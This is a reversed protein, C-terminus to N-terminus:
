KLCKINYEKRKEKKVVHVKGLIDVDVKILKELKSLGISKEIFLGNKFINFQAAGTCSNIGKYIAITEEDNFEKYLVSDGKYLSYIFDKDDVKFIGKSKIIINPLTNELIQYRYVPVVKLKGEVLFFDSRLMEASKVTGGRIEFSNHKLKVNKKSEIKEPHIQGNVKRNVKVSPYIVGVKNLFKETYVNDLNYKDSLKLLEEKPNSSLRALIEDKFYDYPMPYYEMAKESPNEKVRKLIDKKSLYSMRQIFKEDCAGVLLSDVIHHYHEGRNKIGLKWISRLFSTVSGNVCRVKLNGNGSGKANNKVYNYLLISAYKTDMLHREKFGKLHDTFEYKKLLINKKKVNFLSKKVREEFSSWKEVDDGFYEYPTRAGKNQNESSFVLVKNNLSDDGSLSIHIIHDVELVSDDILDKPTIDEGSYMCKKNQEIWLKFKIKEKASPKRGFLENFENLLKENNEKNKKQEKVLSKKKKNTISLERATEINVESPPGYQSVLNNYVKRFESVVRIIRTNTVNKDNFVPLKYQKINNKVYGDPNLGAKVCSDYYNYGEELYPLIIKVAKLSINGFATFDLKFLEEIFEKEILDKLNEEFENKFKCVTIMYAIKDLLDFDDKISNWKDKNIQCIVSKIDHYGKNEIFVIDEAKNVSEYADYNVLSFRDEDKLNLAKRLSKYKITKQNYAMNKVILRDELSLPEKNIKLNNLKSLFVFREFSYSNKAARKENEILSCYGILKEMNEKTSYPKQFRLLKIYSDIFDDKLDFGFEKQNKLILQVESILDERHFSATYKNFGNKKKDKFVNSKLLMEGITRYNENNMIEKNKNISSLIIKTEDDLTKSSGLMDNEAIFSKKSNSKYGRRKSFFLLLRGLESNTLLRDLGEVRLNYIDEGCGKLSYLNGLETESLIKYEILLRKVEKRRNKRGKNHIRSRGQESRISANTKMVKGKYSEPVTFLREGLDVIYNNNLDRVSWGVSAVGVDFAFISKLEM